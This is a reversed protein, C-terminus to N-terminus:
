STKSFPEVAPLITEQAIKWELIKHEVAIGEQCVKELWFALKRMDRKMSFLKSGQCTTRLRLNMLMM